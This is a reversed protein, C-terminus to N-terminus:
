NRNIIRVGSKEGKFTSLHFGICIWLFPLCASKAASKCYFGSGSKCCIKGDQTSTGKPNIYLETHVYLDFIYAYYPHKKTKQITNANCENKNQITDCTTQKGGYKSRKKTLYHVIKAIKIASICIYFSPVFAFMYVVYFLDDM